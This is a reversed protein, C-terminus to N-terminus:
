DNIAEIGDAKMRELNERMQGLVEPPHSEWGTVEAVVRLPDRTRYSRTRNGRFRTDTLNPDHEISGTPEVRYVHGRGDGAALEAGWIAADMTATLYVFNAPDGAGFNSARGPELLDGPVLAAKTGHFFPGADLSGDSMDRQGVYALLSDDGSTFQEMPEGSCTEMAVAIEGDSSRGLVRWIGGAREWRRLREVPDNTSAAAM